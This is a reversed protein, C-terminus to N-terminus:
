GRRVNNRAPAAKTPAYHSPVRVVVAVADIEPSVVMQRWDDFALRAGYAQRAAEASDARTTCVATLEIDPGNTGFPKVYTHDAKIGEIIAEKSLGAAHVVTVGEGVHSIPDTAARHADSSGVASPPIDTIGMPLM